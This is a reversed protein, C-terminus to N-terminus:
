QVIMLDSAIRDAILFGEANLAIHDNFVTFYGKYKNIWRPHEERINIGFDTSIKTLNIGWKTRLGLMVYENFATTTSLEEIEYYLENSHLLQIYKKNNAINWQRTKGDFSHASPGIGIYPSNQWYASNHKSHFNELAFNSVEYQEFSNSNLRERLILFSESVTEDDPMKVIGKNVQHQLVTKPEVTLAYASIHPVNLELAIDINRHWKSIGQEPVGYILDISLNNFGADKAMKVCNLAELATHARNMVKLENEDFSQIGISLRNIGISAYERLINANLDDPNAELTVEIDPALVYTKKVENILKSLEGISLLSPTGGGFYLSTIPQDKLYDSREKIEKGLANLLESKNILSVSFHFNCYSCKQKCYPIHIYIGAM